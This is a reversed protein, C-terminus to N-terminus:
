IRWEMMFPIDDDMMANNQALPKPAVATSKVVEPVPESKGCVGLLYNGTNRGIGDDKPMDYMGIKFTTMKNMLHRQLEEDTPERRLALLHGGHQADIAYFKRAHTEGDKKQKDGTKNPNDGHLWFKFFLKRNKYAEPKVVTIRYEIPKAGDPRNTAWKIEDIYGAVNTEHPIPTIDGGVEQVYEPTVEEERINWFSM